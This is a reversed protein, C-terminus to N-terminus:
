AGPTANNNDINLVKFIIKEKLDNRADEDEITEAVDIMTLLRQSEMIHAHHAEIMSRLEKDKRFFLGSTIEPIISGVVSVIGAETKGILLFGVAVLVILFGLCAFALTYKFFQNSEVRAQDYTSRLQELNLRVAAGIRDFAQSESLVTRGARREPPVDRGIVRGARDLLVNNKGTMIVSEGVSASIAAGARSPPETHFTPFSFDDSM